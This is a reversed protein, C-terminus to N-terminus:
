QGHLSPLARLSVDYDETGFVPDDVRDNRPKGNEDKNTQHDLCLSINAEPLALM